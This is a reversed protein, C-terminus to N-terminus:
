ECDVIMVHLKRPGHAGYEMIMEIDGTCSPGSVYTVDRPLTGESRLKDWIDEYAPVLKDAKLVVVHIDSLFNQSLANRESSTIILSGTEAVAGYCSSVSVSISTKAQWQQLEFMPQAAFDLDLAAIEDNLILGTKAASLGADQQHQRVFDALAAPVENVSALRVVSAQARTIYTEFLDLLNAEDLESRAPVTNRQQHAIRQQVSLLRTKDGVDVNLKQRLNKLLKERAM